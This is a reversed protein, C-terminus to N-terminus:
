HCPKGVPELLSRVTESDQIRSDCSHQEYRRPPDHPQTVEPLTTTPPQMRTEAAVKTDDTQM